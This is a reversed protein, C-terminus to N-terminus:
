EDEDEDDGESMADSMMLADEAAEAIDSDPSNTLNDLPEFSEQGNVYPAAEIAALLLDKNAGKQVLIRNIHPWAEGIGRSGASKVAEFHIDPDKSELCELIEREFGPLHGMAFVATVKWDTDPSAYARGIAGAQWDQAARVAGELARRRVLKPADEDEVVSRLTDEVELFVDETLPPDALEDDEDFGDTDCQELAPGLSIAAQARLDDAETADRLVRILSKALQDNIVVMDGALEAAMLREPAPLKRDALAALITQRAGEPWEWPDM